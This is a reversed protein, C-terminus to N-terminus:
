IMPFPEEYGDWLLSISWRSSIRVSATKEADNIAPATVTKEETIKKSPM